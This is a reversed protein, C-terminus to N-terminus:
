RCSKSAREEFDGVTVVRTESSFETLVEGAGLESLWEASIRVVADDASSTKIWVDYEYSPDLARVEPAVSESWGLPAEFLLFERPGNSPTPEVDLAAYAEWVLERHPPSLTPNIKYIAIEVTPDDTCEEVLILVGGDYANTAAILEARPPDPAPDCSAALVVAALLVGLRACARITQDSM